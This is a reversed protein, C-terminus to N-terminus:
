CGTLNRYVFSTTLTHTVSSTYHSLNMLRVCVIIDILLNMFPLFFKVPGRTGVVCYNSYSDCVTVSSKYVIEIVLESIVDRILCKRFM